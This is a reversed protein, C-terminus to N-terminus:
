DAQFTIVCNDAAKIEAVPVCAAGYEYAEPNVVGYTMIAAGQRTGDITAVLVGAVTYGSEPFDVEFGEGVKKLPCPVHTKDAAKLLIATGAPIVNTGTVAKWAAVGEASLDKGGEIGHIYKRIVISDNTTNIQEQKYNLEIAM